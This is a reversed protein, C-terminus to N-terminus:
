YEFDGGETRRRKRGQFTSVRRLAIEMTGRMNERHEKDKSLVEEMAGRLSEVHGEVSDLYAEKDKCACKGETGGAEKLEQAHKETASALEDTKSKLEQRTTELEKELHVLQHHKDSSQMATYANNKIIGLYQALQKELQVIKDSKHLLANEIEELEGKLGSMAERDNKSGKVRADSTDTSDLAGDSKSEEKSLRPLSPIPRKIILRQKPKPPQEQLRTPQQQLNLIQSDKEAVEGGTILCFKKFENREKELQEYTAGRIKNVQGICDRALQMETKADSLQATLRKLGEEADQARRRLVDFDQQLKANSTQLRQNESELQTKVQSHSQKMTKIEDERAKLMEKLENIEKKSSNLAEDHERHRAQHTEVENGFQSVAELSSANQQMWLAREKAIQIITEESKNANAKANSGSVYPVLWGPKIFTRIVKGKEDFRVIGMGPISEDYNFFKPQNSPLETVVEGGLLRGNRTQRMVSFAIIDFKRSSIEVLHIIVSHYEVDESIVDGWTLCKEFAVKDHFPYERDLIPLEAEDNFHNFVTSWREWTGTCLECPM